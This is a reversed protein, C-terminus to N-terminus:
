ILGKEKYWNITNKIGQQLSYPPKYGLEKKAKDISCIYMDHSIWNVTKRSFLPSGIERGRFPYFPLLKNLGEGICGLIYGVSYPLPILRLKVNMEKAITNVVDKVKYSGESIFYTDCNDKKSEAALYVGEVLNRVYCFEFLNDGGGGFMPLIGLKMFQFVRALLPSREGYIMPPRVIVIPIKYKKRYEKLLYEATLKSNGYDDTPHPEADEKLPKGDRSPGTAEISSFFVFKRIRKDKIVELLNKTGIYNIQYYIEKPLGYYPAAIAALHYIVDVDKVCESLTKKDLVNGDYIEVGKSKQYELVEPYEASFYKKHIPIARRLVKIKYGKSLLLSVLHSGIFGTGGTVLATKKRQVM